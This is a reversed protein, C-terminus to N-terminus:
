SFFKEFFNPINKLGKGFGLQVQKMMEDVKQQLDTLMGTLM